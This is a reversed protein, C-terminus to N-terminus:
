SLLYEKETVAGLQDAVHVLQAFRGMAKGNEYTSGSNLSEKAVDQVHGLLEIRNYDGVDPLTPLIGSFNMETSFSNGEVVKMTGRPSKYTYNTLTNTTHMWQHRYLASMTENLNGSSADKLETEYTSKKVVEEFLIINGSIEAIDFIRPYLPYGMKKNLGEQFTICRKISELKISKDMIKSVLSPYNDGEGFWFIVRTILPYNEVFNYNINSRLLPLLHRSQRVEVPWDDIHEYIYRQIISIM